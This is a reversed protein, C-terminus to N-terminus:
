RFRQKHFRNLFVALAHKLLAAASNRRVVVVDDHHHAFAVKNFGHARAYNHMLARRWYACRSCPSQEDNHLIDESMDVYQVHLSLGTEEILSALPAYKDKNSPAYGFGLDVHMAELGTEWPLQALLQSLAYTLLLSDKGGSLGLLIKDGPELMDFEVIAKRMGKAIYAPIRRAQRSDSIPVSPFFFDLPRRRGSDMQEWLPDFTNEM